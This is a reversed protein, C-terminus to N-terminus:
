ADGDRRILSVGQYPLTRDVVVPVEKEHALLRLHAVDAADPDRLLLLRPVRRLLVRTAEGIGPKILNVDAIGYGQAIAALCARLTAAARERDLPVVAPIDAALALAAGAIDDVFARSRDHPGFEEYYLCGHFKAGDAAPDMVTRSVLGSVTANLISSPILYDDASSACAAAGALDSLVFLGPDVAVGHHANFRAVSQALERAIVGKGTWGDVFVISGPAHRAVIAALAAADIGRDRIISVSYHTVERQLATALVRRVIVGVPTGARALSVLTIAGTRRAAILHALLLCDRAMRERNAACAADFLQLHRPSPLAEASLMEGYHRRGSQILAEKEHVPVFAHGPLRQLLFRVDDHGYSGSFTEGNEASTASAAGTVTGASM